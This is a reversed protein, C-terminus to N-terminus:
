GAFEAGYPDESRRAAADGGNGNERIEDARAIEEPRFETARKAWQGGHGIGLTGLILVVVEYPITIPTADGGRWVAVLVSLAWLGFAVLFGFWGLIASKKWMEAKVFDRWNV